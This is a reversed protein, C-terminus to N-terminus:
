HRRRNSRAAFDYATAFIRRIPRGRTAGAEIPASSWRRSRTWKYGAAEHSHGNHKRKRVVYQWTTTDFRAQTQRSCENRIYFCLRNAFLIHNRWVARAVLTGAYRPRVFQRVTRKADKSRQSPWSRAM